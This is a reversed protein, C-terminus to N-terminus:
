RRSGPSPPPAAAPLMESQEPSPASENPPEAADIATVRYHYRVGAAATDDVFSPEAPDASGVAAFEAEGAAKRYVRYKALDAEENPFWYLRIRGGEIAVALGQPPAPPYVDLPTVPVTASSESERATGGQASVTRVFCAYTEGYRFTRDVYATAAIPRPNLPVQVEPPDGPRIRYVNYETGSAAGAPPSWAFRLEGEATEVRLDTPAAPPPLVELLVPPVTESRRGREDQVQVSYLWRQAAAALAGPDRFVLRGGPAAHELAEGQLAALVEAEKEFKRILYARAVALPNFSPALRLRLIRVTPRDLPAGDTRAGSLLASLVADGGVQRVALARPAAPLIRLPPQPPGKKGCGGAAAAALLVIAAAARRTV